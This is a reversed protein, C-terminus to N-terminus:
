IIFSRNQLGSLSEENLIPSRFPIQRKKEEEKLNIVNSM